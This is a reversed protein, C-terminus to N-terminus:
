IKVNLKNWQETKTLNVKGSSDVFKKEGTDMNIILTGGEEPMPISSINATTTTPSESSASPIINTKDKTPETVLEPDPTSPTTNGLPTNGGGGGGGGNYYNRVRNRERKQYNRYAQNAREQYQAQDQSLINELASAQATAVLNAVQSQVQPTQYRSMWYSNPNTAGSTLGGLNSPVQTGLNRTDEAIQQNNQAQTARLNEVFQLQEDRSQTPNVYVKNEFEYTDETNM